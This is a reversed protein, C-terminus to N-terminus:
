IQVEWCAKVAQRWAEVQPLLYLKSLLDAYAQTAGKPAKAPVKPLARKAVSMLYDAQSELSDRKSAYEDFRMQRRLCTECHTRTADCDQCDMFWHRTEYVRRMDDGEVYSKGLRVVFRMQVAGSGYAGSLITIEPDIM